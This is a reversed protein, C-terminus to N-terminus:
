LHTWGKRSRIHNINQHSVSYERAVVRSTRTDARIALVDANTLKTQKHTEGKAYRGKANRDAMNDKQTGLFLHEPNVCSRVDCKHLVFMGVPIPGNAYEWSLRHSLIKGALCFAGYGLPTKYATWIWCGGHVPHIPGNKNVKDWFRQM